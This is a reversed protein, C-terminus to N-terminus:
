ARLKKNANDLEQIKRRMADSEDCVTKFENQLKGIQGASLRLNEQVSRVEENLNTNESLLKQIRQKYTESEQTTSGLRNKLENVEAGFKSLQAASLRLGEQHEQVEGGLARIEGNRKEVLANLRECEQTLIAVKNEGEARTRKGVSDSELLRRKLEENEGCVLKFENQLKGMQGASLRLNEQATRVEDNLSTNESLLKQVRQKYTDNEQNNASIRNRYESLEANLKSMQGASLRL